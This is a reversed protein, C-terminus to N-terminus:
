GFQLFSSVVSHLIKGLITELMHVDSCLHKNVSSASNVVM